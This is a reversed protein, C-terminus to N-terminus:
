QQNLLVNLNLPKSTQSNRENLIRQKEAINFEIRDIEDKLVNRNEESLRTMPNTLKEQLDSRRRHDGELSKAIEKISFEGSRTSSSGMKAAELRAANAAKSRANASEQKLKTREMASQDRAEQVALLGYTKREDRELNLKHKNEDNIRQMMFKNKDNEAQYRATREDRRQQYLDDVEKDFLSFAMKNLHETEANKASAYQNAAGVALFGLLSM